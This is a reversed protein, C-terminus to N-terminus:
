LVGQFEKFYRYRKLKRLAGKEIQRVRERTINLLKGARELTMPEYREIGFRMDLVDWERKKLLLKAMKVIEQREIDWVVESELNYNMSIANELEVKGGDEGDYVKNLSTTVTDHEYVIIDRVRDEEMGLIKALYEVSPGEGYNEKEYDAIIKNIKYLNEHIHVPIRINRECNMMYRNITQRVWYHAYTSFKVGKDPDFYETAQILGVMGEQVIDEMPVNSPRYVESFTYVMAMNKKVIANRLENSPHERYYHFVEQEEARTWVRDKDLIDDIRQNNM